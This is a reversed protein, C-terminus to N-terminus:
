AESCGPAVPHSVNRVQTLTAVLNARAADDTGTGVFFRGAAANLFAFGFHARSRQSSMQQTMPSEAPTHSDGLECIAMLHVADAGLSGAHLIYLTQKGFVTQCLPVFGQLFNNGFVSDFHKLTLQTDLQQFLTMQQLIHADNVIACCATFAALDHKM